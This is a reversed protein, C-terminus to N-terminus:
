NLFNLLILVFMVFISFYLTPRETQRGGHPRYANRYLQSYFNIFDGEAFRYPWFVPLTEASFVFQGNGFSYSVSNSVPTTYYPQSYIPQRSSFFGRRRQRSGYQERKEDTNIEFYAGQIIRFADEAGKVPARSPHYRSAKERFTKKIESLSVNKDLGLIKYSDQGEMKLIEQIEKSLQLMKKSKELEELDDKEQTQNYQKEAFEAYGPYDANELCEKAKTKFDAPM